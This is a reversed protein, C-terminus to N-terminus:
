TYLHNLWCFSSYTTHKYSKNPARRTKLGSHDTGTDTAGFLVFYTSFIPKLSWFYTRNSVQLARPYARGPGIKHVWLKSPVVKANEAVRSSHQSSRTGPTTAKPYGGGGFFFHKDVPAEIPGSPALVVAIVVAGRIKVTNSNSKSNSKSNINSHSHSYSSSGVVIEVQSVEWLAVQHGGEPPRRLLECPQAM